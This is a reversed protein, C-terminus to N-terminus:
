KGKKIRTNHKNKFAVLNCQWTINLKPERSSKLYKIELHIQFLGTERQVQCTKKKMILLNLKQKESGIEYKLYRSMVSEVPVEQCHREAHGRAPSGRGM